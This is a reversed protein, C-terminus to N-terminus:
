RKQKFLLDAFIASLMIFLSLIVLLISFNGIYNQNFLDFSGKVAGILLFFLSAPVLFKLPQFYFNLRFILGLFSFFDFPKISSVGVREYYDIPVFKVLYNSKIFAMTITSTFSFRQPYLNWFELCKDKKFIRMGSNLDLIKFDALFSAFRNLIKKPLRRAAPTFNNKTIRAGVVMDYDKLYPLFQSLKDNPYTGDADTIYVWEGTARSIGRKLSAGYGLNYPNNIIVIDEHEMLVSLTKDQSCDNVVIIEFDYGKVAAMTNKITLLTSSIAAEENYVPIVISIKM